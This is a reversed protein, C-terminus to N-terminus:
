MEPNRTFLLFTTNKQQYLFFINKEINLQLGLVIIESIIVWRREREVSAVRKYM